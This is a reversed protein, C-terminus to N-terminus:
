MLTFAYYFQDYINPVFACAIILSFEFLISYSVLDMM